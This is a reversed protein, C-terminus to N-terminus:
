LEVFFPKRRSPLKRLPKVSIDPSLPPAPQTATV